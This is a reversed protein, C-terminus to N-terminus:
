LQGSVHTGEPVLAGPGPPHPCIPRAPRASTAEDMVRPKVSGVGCLGQIVGESQTQGCSM